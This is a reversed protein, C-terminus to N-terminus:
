SVGALQDDLLTLWHTVRKKNVGMDSYGVRSASYISVRAGEGDATIEVYIDDVFGMLRSKQTFHLRASDEAVLATRPEAAVLSKLTAAVADDTSQLAMAPGDPAAGKTADALLYNNPRSSRELTTFEIMGVDMGADIYRLRWGKACEDGKDTVWRALAAFTSICGSKREVM